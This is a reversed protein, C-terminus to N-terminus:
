SYSGGVKVHLMGTPGSSSGITLALAVDVWAFDAVTINDVTVDDSCVNPNVSSGFATASGGSKARVFSNAPSAPDNVGRVYLEWQVTNATFGSGYLAARLKSLGTAPIRGLYFLSPSSTLGPPVEIDREGVDVKNAYLIATLRGRLEGPTSSSDLNGAMGVRVTYSGTTSSLDHEFRANVDTATGVATISDLVRPNAECLAVIPRGEADSGAMDIEVLLVLKQGGPIDFPDSLLVQIASTSTVRIVFPWTGIGTPIAL